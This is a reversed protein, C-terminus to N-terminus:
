PTLTWCFKGCLKATCRFKTSVFPFSLRLRSPPARPAQPRQRPPLRLAAADATMGLQKRGRRAEEEV